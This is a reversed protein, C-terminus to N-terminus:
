ISKKKRQKNVITTLAKHLAMAHIPYLFIEEPKGKCQPAVVVTTGWYETKTEHPILMISSGAHWSDDCRLLTVEPHAMAFRELKQMLPYGTLKFEQHDDLFQKQYLRGLRHMERSNHLFERAEKLVAATEKPTAKRDLRWGCKCIFFFSPKVGHRLNWVLVGTSSHHRMFKNCKPCRTKDPTFSM